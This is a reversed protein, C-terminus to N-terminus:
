LLEGWACHRRAGHYQFYKPYGSMRATDVLRTNENAAADSVKAPL